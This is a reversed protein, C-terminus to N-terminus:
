KHLLQPLTADGRNWVAEGTALGECRLIYYALLGIDKDVMGLKKCIYPACYRPMIYYHIQLFEILWKSSLAGVQNFKEGAQNWEKRLRKQLAVM